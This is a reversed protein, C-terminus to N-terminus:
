HAEDRGGFGLSDLFPPWHGLPDLEVAPGDYEHLMFKRCGDCYAFADFRGPHADEVQALVLCVTKVEGDLFRQKMPGFKGGELKVIERLASRIIPDGIKQMQIHETATMKELAAYWEVATMGM